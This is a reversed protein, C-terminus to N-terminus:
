PIGILAALRTLTHDLFAAPRDISNRYQGFLEFTVTGFLATWALLGAALRHDSVPGGALERVQDLDRRLAKPIAASRTSHRLRRRSM